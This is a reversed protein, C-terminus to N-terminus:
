GEYPEGVIEEYQAATLQGRSVLKRLMAKNWPDPYNQKAREYVNIM